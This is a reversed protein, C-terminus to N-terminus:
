CVITSVIDDENAEHVNQTENTVENDPTGTLHNSQTCVTNTIDSADALEPVSDEKPLDILSPADPTTIISSSTQQQDIMDPSSANSSMSESNSDEILHELIAPPLDEEHTIGIIVPDNENMKCLFSINNVTNM